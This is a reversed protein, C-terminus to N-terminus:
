VSDGSRSQRVPVRCTARRTVRFRDDLRSLRVIIGNTATLVSSLTADGVGWAHEVSSRGIGCSSRQFRYPLPMHRSMEYSRGCIVKPRTTTSGAFFVQGRSCAGEQAQRHGERLIVPVPM